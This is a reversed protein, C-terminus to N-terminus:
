GNLASAVAAPAFSLTDGATVSKSATLAGWEMRVSSGDEIEVGVITSTPMNPYAITGSNASVSPTATTAASFAITQGTGNTYGGGTALETGATDEDGNATMLLMKHGTPQTLATGGHIHDQIKKAFAQDLSGM